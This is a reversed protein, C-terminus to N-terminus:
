LEGGLLEFMIRKRMKRAFDIAKFGKHDQAQTDAGKALLTKAMDLRSYCVAAMLPTTIVEYLM